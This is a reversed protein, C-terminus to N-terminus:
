RMVSENLRTKDEKFSKGERRRNTNNKKKIYKNIAKVVDVEM